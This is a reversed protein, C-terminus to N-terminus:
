LWSPALLSGNVGETERMELQM